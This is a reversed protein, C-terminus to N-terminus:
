FMSSSGHALCAGFNGAYVLLRIGNNILDTLLAKSNRMGDGQFMFARNMPVNCAQFPRKQAAGLAKQVDPRNMYTEIWPIERYCLPGMKEPDCERRVDYINRGTAAQKYDISLFECFFPSVMYLGLCQQGVTFPLPHALRKHIM